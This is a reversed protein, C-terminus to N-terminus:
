LLEKGWAVGMHIATELRNAVEDTLPIKEGQYLLFEATWLEKILDVSRGKEHNGTFLSVDFELADAIKKLTSFSPDHEGRELRSLYGTAIGSKKSVEGLTMGKAKRKERILEGLDKEFEM